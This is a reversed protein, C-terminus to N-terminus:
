PLSCAMAEKLNPYEVPICIKQLLIIKNTRKLRMRERVEFLEETLSLINRTPYVIRHSHYKITIYTHGDKFHNKALLVFSGFEQSFVELVNLKDTDYKHGEQHSGVGQTTVYHFHM